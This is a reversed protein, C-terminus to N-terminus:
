TEPDFRASGRLREAGRNKANHYWERHFKDLPASLPQMKFHLPTYYISLYFPSDATERASLSDFPESGHVQNPDHWRLSIGRAKGCLNWM